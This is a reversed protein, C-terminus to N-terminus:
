SKELMAYFELIELFDKKETFKLKKEKAFKKLQSLHNGFYKKLFEKGVVKSQSKSYNLLLGDTVFASIKLYVDTDGDPTIFLLQESQAISTRTSLAPAHNPGTTRTGKVDTLQAPPRFAMFAFDKLEKLLEFLGTAERRTVDDTYPLSIFTRKKKTNSDLITMLSIKTTHFIEEASDSKFNVIGVKDNYKVKGTLKTGSNLSISGETWELNSFVGELIKEQTFSKTFVVCAIIFLVIRKM